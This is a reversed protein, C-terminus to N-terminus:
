SEPNTIARLNNLSKKFIDNSVAELNDQMKGYEEQSCNIAKEMATLLDGNEEIISNESNFHYFDSFERNIIPPKKFGYSLQANGTVRSTKYRLHEEYTPDLLMLIFDSNQIERYMQEYTLRGKFDLYKAIKEPIELDSYRGFVTIRFNLSKEALKEVAEFLQNYNRCKSKLNGVVVFNTIENKNVRPIKGFYHPNAYVGVGFDGLNVVRKQKLLNQFKIDKLTDTSHDVVIANPLNLINFTNLLKNAGWDITNLFVYNYKKFISQIILKNDFLEKNNKYSYIKLKDTKDFVSFSDVGEELVLVDVNYGLELFYKAYGPMCEHHYSNPELLLVSNDRSRKAIFSELNGCYLNDIKKFESPSKNCKILKFKQAESNNRKCCRIPSYTKKDSNASSIYMGNSKSTISYTGDRNSIIKWKEKDTNSADKQTIEAFTKKNRKESNLMKGSCKAQITYYGQNDRLLNFKQSNGGNRKSMKIKGTNGKRSNYIGLFQEDNVASVIKYTGNDVLSKTKGAKDKAICTVGCAFYVSLLIGFLKKLSSKKM